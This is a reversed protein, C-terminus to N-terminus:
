PQVKVRAGDSLRDLNSVAVVEGAALDSLVQTEEFNSQGITV